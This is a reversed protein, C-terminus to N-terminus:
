AGVGAPMWPAKWCTAMKLFMRTAASPSLDALSLTKSTLSQDSFCTMRTPATDSAVVPSEDPPPPGAGAATVDRANSPVVM